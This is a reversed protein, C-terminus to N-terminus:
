KRESLRTSTRSRASSGFRSGTVVGGLVYAEGGHYSRVLSNLGDAGIILDTQVHETMRADGGTDVSLVLTAQKDGDGEASLAPTISKCVAGPVIECGLRIAARRLANYLSLSRLCTMPHGFKERERCYDIHTGEDTSYM